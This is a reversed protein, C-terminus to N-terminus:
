YKLYIDYLCMLIMNDDTPKQLNDQCGHLYTAQGLYKQIAEKKDYGFYYIKGKVKQLITGNSSVYTPIQRVM